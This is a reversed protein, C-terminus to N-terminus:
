EDFDLLKVYSNKSLFYGVRDKLVMDIPVDYYDLQGHCHVQFSVYENNYQSVVLGQFRKNCVNCWVTKQVPIDNLDLAIDFSM